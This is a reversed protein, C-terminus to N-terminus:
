IIIKNKILENILEVNKIKNSFNKSILYNKHCIEFLYFSKKLTVNLTVNFSKELTFYTDM